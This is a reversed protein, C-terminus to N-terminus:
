RRPGLLEDFWYPVKLEPEPKAARAEARLTVNEAVVKQYRSKNRAIIGRLRTVEARLEVEDMDFIDDM